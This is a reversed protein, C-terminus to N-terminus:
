QMETTNRHQLRHAAHYISGLHRVSHIVAATKPFGGLFPILALFNLLMGLRDGLRRDAMFDRFACITGIVPIFGMVMQVARGILGMDPAYDGRVMGLYVNAFFSYHRREAPLSTSGLYPNGTSM